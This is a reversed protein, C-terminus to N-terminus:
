RNKPLVPSCQHQKAKHYHANGDADALRLAGLAHQLRQATQGARTRKDQAIAHRHANGPDVQHVVDEWAVSGDQSDWILLFLRITSTKAELVRVGLFGFRSKSEQRFAGLKLQALYRTKTFRPV